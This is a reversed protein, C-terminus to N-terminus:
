EIIKIKLDDKKKLSNYTHLVIAYKLGNPLNPIAQQYYCQTSIIKKSSIIKNNSDLIAVEYHSQNYPSSFLYLFLYDAQHDGNSESYLNAQILEGKQYEVSDKKYSEFIIKREFNIFYYHSVNGLSDYELLHGFPRGNLYYTKFLLKGSRNYKYAFGNQMDDHYFSSDSVNGNNFYGVEVGEKIGYKFTSYGLYNDLSDYYKVKGNFLSDAFLKGESIIGKPDKIRVVNENKKNTCSFCIFCTTIIIIRQLM